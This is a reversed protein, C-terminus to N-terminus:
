DKSAQKPNKSTRPGQFARRQCKRSTKEPSEDRIRPWEGSQTGTKSIQSASNEAKEVYLILVSTEPVNLYYSVEHGSISAGDPVVGNAIKSALRTSRTSMKRSNYSILRQIVRHLRSCSTKKRLVRERGALISFHRIFM